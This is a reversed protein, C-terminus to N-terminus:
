PGVVVVVMGHVLFDANAAASRVATADAASLVLDAPNAGATAQVFIPSEGARRVAVPDAPDSVYVVPSRLSAAYRTMDAIGYIHAGSADLVEPAVTFALRQGRADIVLGTAGGTHPPSEPAAALTVLLPRLWAQLSLAADLEVGGSDLYRSEYVEWGGLNGELRDAVADGGDLFGAATRERDIRLGRALAVFAPALQDRADGEM